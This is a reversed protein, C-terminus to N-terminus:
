SSSVLRQHICYIYSGTLSLYRQYLRLFLFLFMVFIYFQKLFVSLTRYQPTGPTFSFCFYCLIHYIAHMECSHVRFLTINTRYILINHLSKGFCFSTYYFVFACFYLSNLSPIWIPNRKEYIYKCEKM